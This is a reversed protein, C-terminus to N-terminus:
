RPRGRRTERPVLLDLDDFTRLGLGGYAAVALTAGKFTCADIGAASLRDLAASLYTALQVNRATVKRQRHTLAELVDAPVAEACVSRLRSAVLPTVRHREALARVGAWDIPAAACLAAIRAELAATPRPSACACVLAWARARAGEPEAQAAGEREARVTGEREARVTAKREGRAGSDESDARVNSM